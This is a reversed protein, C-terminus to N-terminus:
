KSVLIKNKGKFETGMKTEQPIHGKELLKVEPVYTIFYKHTDEKKKVKRIKHKAKHKKM